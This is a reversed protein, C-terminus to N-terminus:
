RIMKVRPAPRSLAKKELKKLKGPSLKLNEERAEEQRRRIEERYILSVLDHRSRTLAERTKEHVSYNKTYDALHIAAALVQRALADDNGVRVKLHLRRREVYGDPTPVADLALFEILQPFFDQCRAIVYHAYNTLCKEMGNIYARHSRPLEAPEYAYTTDALDENSKVFAKNTKKQTIAFTVPDMQPLTMDITMVDQMGFIFRLLWEHWLCQRKVYDFTITLTDCSTRGSAFTRFRHLKLREYCAPEDAIYAFHERLLPKLAALTRKLRNVNRRYGFYAYFGLGVCFCLFYFYHRRFNPPLYLLLPYSLTEFDFIDIKKPPQKVEDTAEDEPDVEFEFAEFEINTATERTPKLDKIWQTSLFDKVEFDFAGDALATRRDALFCLALAAGFCIAKRCINTM